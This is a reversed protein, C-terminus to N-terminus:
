KTFKAVLLWGFNRKFFKDILSNKKTFPLYAPEMHTVDFSIDRFGIDSLIKRLESKTYHTHYFGDTFFKQVRIIEM